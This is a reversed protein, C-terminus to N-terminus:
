AREAREILLWGQDEHEPKILMNRFAIPLEDRSFGCHAEPQAVKDVREIALLQLLRQAKRQEDVVSGVSRAGHLRQAIWEGVVPAAHAHPNLRAMECATRLLELNDAHGPQRLATVMPGLDMDINVYANILASLSEESLHPVKVQFGGKREIPLVPTREAIVLRQFQHLRSAISVIEHEFLEDSGDAFV